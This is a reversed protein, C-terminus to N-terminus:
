LGVKYKLANYNQTIEAGSLVRNYVIVFCVQGNSTEGGGSQRGVQLGNFGESGDANQATLSANTYLGYSDGAINATGAYIRFNTDNPSAQGPNELGYVPNGAYYNITSGNWHGLLWNNNLGALMRQTNTAGTYRTATMVTSNSSTFNVGPIEIYGNASATVQLYSGTLYPGTTFSVNAQLSGTIPQGAVLNYWSLGEGPYSAPQTSDLYLVLGSTVPPLEISASPAKLIVDDMRQAGLMVDNILTNGLYVTHM